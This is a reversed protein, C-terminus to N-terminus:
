APQMSQRLQRGAEIGSRLLENFIWRDLRTQTAKMDVDNKYSIKNLGERGTRFGSFVILNLLTFRGKYRAEQERPGLYRNIARVLDEDTIEVRSTLDKDARKKGIGPIRLRVSHRRDKKEFVIIDM